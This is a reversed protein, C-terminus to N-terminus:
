RGDEADIREKEADTTRTARRWLSYALTCGIVYLGALMLTDGAITIATM